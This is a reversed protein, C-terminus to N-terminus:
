GGPSRGSGPILGADRVDEASAPLNKVTLVVQCAARSRNGFSASFYPLQYLYFLADHTMYHNTVSGLICELINLNLFSQSSPILNLHFSICCIRILSSSPSSLHLCSSWHSNFSVTGGKPFSKSVTDNEDSTLPGDSTALYHRPCSRHGAHHRLLGMNGLLDWRGGTLASPQNEM